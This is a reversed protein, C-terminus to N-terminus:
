YESRLAMTQDVTIRKPAGPDPGSYTAIIRFETESVEAAYSYHARTPVEIDGNKGLEDLSAYRSNGAWYRREANAIALLDNQVGTVDITTQPTNGIPTVTQAQQMYIYLGIGVVIIASIFGFARGM